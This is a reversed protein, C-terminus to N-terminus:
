PQVHPRLDAFRSDGIGNVDRLQEIDTFGGNQDRYDIIHQALVPGIGPLADLQELTASNLSVVATPGTVPSGGGAPPSPAPAPPAGPAAPPPEGVVIQEGDVLPRARNLGDAEAGPRVGGAARLADEVRSGAPLRHVGPERVKGVVDVVVDAAARASPEGAADPVAAEAAPTPASGRAEPPHVPQPRGSWFHYAALAVGAVLVLVLAACTAPELGCRLRIWVPLRERVAVGWREWRGMEERDLAPQDGAGEPPSAARGAAPATTPAATRRPPAVVPTAM